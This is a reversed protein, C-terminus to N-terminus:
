RVCRVPFSGAPPFYNTSGVSFSVIWMSGEGYVSSSWYFASQCSFQGNITPSTYLAVNGDGCSNPHGPYDPLPTPTGNTCVVLSKLEDKTPLRWDDHGGLHLNACYISAQDWNYVHGDDCRQWEHGAYDVTQPGSTCTGTDSNTAGGLLLSLVPTIVKNEAAGAHIPLLLSLFIVVCCSFLTLKKGDM